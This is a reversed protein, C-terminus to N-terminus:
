ANNIPRGCAPINGGTFLDDLNLKGSKQEELTRAKKEKEKRLSQLNLPLVLECEIGITILMTMM